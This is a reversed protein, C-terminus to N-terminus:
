QFARSRVKFGGTFAKMFFDSQTCLIAKHGFYERTKGKCIQKIKVDSLTPDNFLRSLNLLHWQRMRICSVDEEAYGGHQRAPTKVCVRNLTSLNQRLLFKKHPYLWGRWVKAQGSICTQKNAATFTFTFVHMASCSQTCIHGTLARLVM